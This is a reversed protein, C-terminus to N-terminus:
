GGCPNLTTGFDAQLTAVPRATKTQLAMQTSQMQLWSEWPGVASAECGGLGSCGQPRGPWLVAGM